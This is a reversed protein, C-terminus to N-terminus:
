VRNVKPAWPGSVRTHENPASLRLTKITKV